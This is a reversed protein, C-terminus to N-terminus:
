AAGTGRQVRARRGGKGLLLRVAPAFLGILDLAHRTPMDRRRIGVHVVTQAFLHRCDIAHLDIEKGPDFAVHAVIGIGLGSRVYTKMLDADLAGLVVNIHQGAQDFAHLVEAWAPAAHDYTVLPYRAIDALGM